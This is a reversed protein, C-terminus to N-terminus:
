NDVASIELIRPSSEGPFPVARGLGVIMTDLGDVSPSYLGVGEATLNGSPITMTASFPTAVSVVPPITCTVEFEQDFTPLGVNTVVSLIASQAFNTIEAVFLLYEGTFFSMLIEWVYGNGTSNMFGGAVAVANGAITMTSPFYLKHTLTLTKTTDYTFTSMNVPINGSAVTSEIYGLGLQLSIHQEVGFPTWITGVEPTHTTLDIVGTGPETFTDLFVFDLPSVTVTVSPEVPTPTPTPTITVPTLKLLVMSMVICFLGLVFVLGPLMITSVNHRPPM